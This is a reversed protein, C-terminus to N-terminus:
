AWRMRPAVLETAVHTAEVLPPVLGAVAGFGRTRPVLLGVVAALAVCELVADGVCYFGMEYDGGAILSTAARGGWLWRVHPALLAAALFPAARDIWRAIRTSDM